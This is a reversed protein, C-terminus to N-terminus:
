PNLIPFSPLLSLVNRPLMNTVQHHTLHRDVELAELAHSFRIAWRGFVDILTEILQERMIQADHIPPEPPLSTPNAEAAEYRAWDTYNQAFLTVGVKM